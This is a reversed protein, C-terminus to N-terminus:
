DYLTEEQDLRKGSIWWNFYTEADKYVEDCRLGRTKRYAIHKEAANFYLARYKPYAELDVKMKGAQPCAICGVRKHGCNYLPNFPIGREKIFDWVDDSSWDIIPNLMFEQKTM